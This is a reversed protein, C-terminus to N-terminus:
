SSLIGNFDRIAFIQRTQYQDNIWPDHV